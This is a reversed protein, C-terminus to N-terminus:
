DLYPREVLQQTAEIVKLATAPKDLELNANVLLVYAHTNEPHLSIAETATTIVEHSLGSDYQQQALQLKIDARVRNWQQNAEQKATAHTMSQCGAIYCVMVVMFMIAYRKVRINFIHNKM